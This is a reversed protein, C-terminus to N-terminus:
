LFKKSTKKDFGKIFYLSYFFLILSMLYPFKLICFKFKLRHLFPLHSIWNLIVIHNGFFPLDVFTAFLILMAKDDRIYHFKWKGIWFLTLKYYAKRKINTVLFM